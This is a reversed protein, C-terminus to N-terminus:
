FLCSFVARFSSSRCPFSCVKCFFFRSFAECCSSFVELFACIAGFIRFPFSMSFFFGSFFISFVANQAKFFLGYCDSVESVSKLSVESSM